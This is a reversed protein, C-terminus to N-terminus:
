PSFEELIRMIMPFREILQQAFVGIAVILAVMRRNIKQAEVTDTRAAITDARLEAIIKEQKEEDRRREQQQARDLREIEGRTHANERSVVDKLSNIAESMAREMRGFDEKVEARLHANAMETSRQREHVGGLEREIHMIRDRVWQLDDM